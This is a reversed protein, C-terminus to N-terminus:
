FLTLQKDDVFEVFISPKNHFSCYAAIANLVNTIFIEFTRHSSLEIQAINNLEGNVPEILTRKRLTIKDIVSLLMNKM